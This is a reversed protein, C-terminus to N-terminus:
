LKCTLRKALYITVYSIESVDLVSLKESLAIRKDSM